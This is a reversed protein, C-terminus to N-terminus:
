STRPERLILVGADFDFTIRFRRLFDLGLLGDARFIPHLDYVFVELGSVVFAGVRLRGLGVVPM